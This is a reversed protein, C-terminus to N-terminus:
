VGKSCVWLSSRTMCCVCSSECSYVAAKALQEICKGQKCLTRPIILPMEKNLFCEVLLKVVEQWVPVSLGAQLLGPRNGDRRTVLVSHQSIFQSQQQPCKRQRREMHRTNPPKGEFSTVVFNIKFPKKPATKPMRISRSKIPKTM